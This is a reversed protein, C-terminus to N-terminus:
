EAARNNRTAAKLKEIDAPSLKPRDYAPAGIHPARTTTLVPGTEGTM